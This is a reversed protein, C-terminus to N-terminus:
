DDEEAAYYDVDAMYGLTYLNNTVSNLIDYMTDGNNVDGGFDSIADDCEKAVELMPELMKYARKVNRLLTDFMERAASDDAIDSYIGENKVFKELKAIRAELKKDM